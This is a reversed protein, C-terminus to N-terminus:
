QVYYSFAEEKIFDLATVTQFTHKIYSHAITNRSFFSNKVIKLLLM